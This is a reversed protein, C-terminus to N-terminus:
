EYYKEDKWDAPINKVDFTKIGKESSINFVDNDLDLIYIYEIFLDLGPYNTNVASHLLIYGACLPKVISGQLGRTLCYWDKDSQRSVTLDTCKKLQEIDNNTVETNETIYVCKLLMNKWFYYTNNEIACKIEKILNRGLCSQYSDFHNYMVYYQGNYRIIILGRTGM